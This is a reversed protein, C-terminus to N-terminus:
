YNGTYPRTDQGREAGRGQGCGQQAWPAPGPVDTNPATMPAPTAALRRVQELLAALQATLTANTNTLTEIIGKDTAAANVLKAIAEVTDQQFQTTAANAINYGAGIAMNKTLRYTKHKRTFYVKLNNWSKEVLPHGNWKERVDLLVDSNLLHTCTQAIIQNAVFPAHGADAYHQVPDCPEALKKNNEVLDKQTIGSYTDFLFVIM